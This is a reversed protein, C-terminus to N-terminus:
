AAKRKAKYAAIQARRAPTTAPFLVRLDVTPTAAMSGGMTSYRGLVRRATAPGLDILVVPQGPRAIRLASM